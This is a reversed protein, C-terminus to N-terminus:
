RSPQMGRAQAEDFVVVRDVPVRSSDAFYDDIFHHVNQVFTGVKRRSEPLTQGTRRRGDRALAETLVRVLPGNGSLFVGLDGEHLRRNHVINLGALTKGLRTCGDRLLNAQSRDISGGGCCRDGGGTTRTLNEIGGHCRQDREREPRCLAITSGRHHDAHSCLREQGMRRRQHLM